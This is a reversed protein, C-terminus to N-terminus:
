HLIHKFNSIQPFISQYDQEQFIQTLNLPKKTFSKMGYEHMGNMICHTKLLKQMLISQKEFFQKKWIKSRDFRNSSQDFIRYFNLNCDAQSSRHKIPAPDISISKWDVLGLKQSISIRDSPNKLLKKEWTNKVKNLKEFLKKSERKSWDM